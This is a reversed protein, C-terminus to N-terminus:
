KNKGGDEEEEDEESEVGINIQMKWTKMKLYNKKM